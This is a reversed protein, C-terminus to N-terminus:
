PLAPNQGDVTNLDQSKEVSGQLVPNFGFRIKTHGVNTQISRGVESNLTLM